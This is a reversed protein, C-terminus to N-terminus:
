PIAFRAPLRGQAKAIPVCPLVFLLVPSVVEVGIAGNAMGFVGNVGDVIGLPRLVSIEYDGVLPLLETTAPHAVAVM